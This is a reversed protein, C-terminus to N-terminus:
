SRQPTPVGSMQSSSEFVYSWSIAFEQFDNGRRQPSQRQIRPREMLSGPWLPASPTPYATYGVAQGSQTARYTTRARVVQRQPIGNIPTTWAYLPGGGSTEVTERWSLVQTAPDGENVPVDAELVIRYTRWTTYEANGGEPFSPPAVVRIGGLCNADILKHATQTTSDLLVADVNRRKYALELAKIKTTIDAVDDGILMGEITWSETYAYPVGASTLLSQRDIALKVEQDDHSYPGFRLIM